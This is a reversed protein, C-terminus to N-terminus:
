PSPILATPIFRMWPRRSFALTHSFPGIGPTNTLPIVPGLPTQVTASSLNLVSADVVAIFQFALGSILVTTTANTQDYSRNKILAYTNVDAASAAFGFCVLLSLTSLLRTKM